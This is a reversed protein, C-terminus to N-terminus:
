QVGELIRSRVAVLDVRDSFGCPLSRSGSDIPAAVLSITSIYWCSTFLLGLHDYPIPSSTVQESRLLLSPMSKYQYQIGRPSKSRYSTGTCQTSNCLMFVQSPQSSHTRGHVKKVFYCEELETYGISFRTHSSESNGNKRMRAPIASRAVIHGIGLNAVLSTLLVTSVACSESHDSLARRVSSERGSVVECLLDFVVCRMLVYRDASHVRGRLGCHQGRPRSCSLAPGCRVYTIDRAFGSRRVGVSVDRLVCCEELHAFLSLRPPDDCLSQLFKWKGATQPHILDGLLSASGLPCELSLLIRERKCSELPQTHTAIATAAAVAVAVIAAAIRVRLSGVPSLTIVSTWCSSQVVSHTSPYDPLNYSSAHRLSADEDSISHRCNSALPLYPYHHLPARVLSSGISQHSDTTNLDTHICVWIESEDEFSTMDATDYLPQHDVTNGGSTITM